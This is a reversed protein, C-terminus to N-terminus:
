NCHVRAKVASWLREKDAPSFARLLLLLIITRGNPGYLLIARATKKAFRFATWPVTSKVGTADSIEIGEGNISYSIVRQAPVISRWRIRGSYLFIPTFMILFVASLLICFIIMACVFVIPAIPSYTTIEKFDVVVIFILMAITASIAGRITRRAMRAWDIIPVVFDIRHLETTGSIPHDAIGIPSNM